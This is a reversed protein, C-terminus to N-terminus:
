PKREKPILVSSQVLVCPGELEYVRNLPRSAKLIREREREEVAAILSDLLAKGRQEGITHVLVSYVAAIANGVETM